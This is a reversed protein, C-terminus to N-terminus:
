FAAKIEEIQGLELAALNVDYVEAIFDDNVPQVTIAM